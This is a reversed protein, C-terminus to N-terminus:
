FLRSRNDNLMTLTGRVVLHLGSITTGDREM